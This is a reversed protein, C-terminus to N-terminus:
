YQCVLQNICSGIELLDLCERTHTFPLAHGADPFIELVANPVNEALYRAIEVDVIQDKEGHMIMLPVEIDKLIERLDADELYKLGSQLRGVNTKGRPEIKFASPSVMAEYFKDLVMKASLNMMSQMMVVASLPKGFPFDADLRTFRPFGGMIVIAEINKSLRSSRLALLAGLSHAILMCPGDPIFKELFLDNVENLSIDLRTYGPEEFGPFFGYDLIEDPKYPAYLEVPVAWGPYIIRKM